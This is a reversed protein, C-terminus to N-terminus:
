EYLQIDVLSTWTISIRPFLHGCQPFTLVKCTIWKELRWARLSAVWARRRGSTQKVADANRVMRLSEFKRGAHASLEM